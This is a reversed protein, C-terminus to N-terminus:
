KIMKIVANNNLILYYAGSQLHELNYIIKNSEVNGKKVLVGVNNYIKFPEGIKAKPIVIKVLDTTTDRCGNITDIVLSNTKAAQLLEPMSNVFLTKQSTADMRGIAKATAIKIARQVEAQTTKYKQDINGRENSNEMYVGGASLATVLSIGALIKSWTDPLASNIKDILSM